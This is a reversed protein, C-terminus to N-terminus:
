IRVSDTVSDVKPPTTPVIRPKMRACIMLLSVGSGAATCTQDTIIPMPMVATTPSNKPSYGAIRAARSSGSRLAAAPTVMAPM